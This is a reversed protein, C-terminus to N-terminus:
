CKDSVDWGRESLHTKRETKYFEWLWGRLEDLRNIISILTMQDDEDNISLLHSSYHVVDVSSSIEVFIM